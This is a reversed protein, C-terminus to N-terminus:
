FQCHGKTKIALIKFLFDIKKQLIHQEVKRHVLGFGGYKALIGDIIIFLNFNFHMLHLNPMFGAVYIISM